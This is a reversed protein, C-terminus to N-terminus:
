GAGFILWLTAAVVLLGIGLRVGVRIWLWRSEDSDGAAAQDAKQQDPETM